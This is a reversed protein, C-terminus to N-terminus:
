CLHHRSFVVADGMTGKEYSNILWVGRSESADVTKPKCGKTKGRKEEKEHNIAHIKNSRHYMQRRDLEWGGFRGRERVERTGRRLCIFVTVTERGGGIDDISGSNLLFYSGCVHRLAIRRHTYRVGAGLEARIFTVWQALGVPYSASPRRGGVLM